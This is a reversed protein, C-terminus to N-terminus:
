GIAFGIFDHGVLEFAFQTRGTKDKVVLQAEFPALVEVEVFGKFTAAMGDYQEQAVVVELGDAWHVLDQPGELLQQALSPELADDDIAPIGSFFGTGKVRHGGGEVPNTLDDFVHVEPLFFVEVHAM